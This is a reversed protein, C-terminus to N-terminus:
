PIGDPGTRRGKRIITAGNSPRKVSLGRIRGTIGAVKVCARSSVSGKVTPLLLEKATWGIQTREGRLM